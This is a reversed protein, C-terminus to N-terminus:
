SPAGAILAIASTMAWWVFGLLAVLGVLALLDSAVRSSM